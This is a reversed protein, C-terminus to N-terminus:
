FNWSLLYGLRELRSNRASNFFAFHLLEPIQGAKSQLASQCPTILFEDHVPLASASIKPTAFRAQSRVPNPNPTKM